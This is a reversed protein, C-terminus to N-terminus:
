AVEVPPLMGPLADVLGRGNVEIWRRQGPSQRWLEPGREAFGRRHFVDTLVDAYSAAELLSREFRRVREIVHVLLDHMLRAGVATQLVYDTPNLFCEPFVKEVGRWYADLVAVQGPLNLSGFFPSELLPRMSTVLRAFGITTGTKPANAFRVRGSWAVTCSLDEVIQAGRVKWSEATEILSRMVQPESEARRSLLDLTLDSGLGTAASNLVHFQRTEQLEDAGLMCVFPVEFEGWRSADEDVLTALALVRHQGDVVELRERELVLYLGGDRELLNRAPDFDRLSLLITTSVDARNERLDDAIREVRPCSVDRQYGTKTGADRRRVRHRRVLDYVPITGLALSAGTRTTIRLIPVEVPGSGESTDLRESRAVSENSM